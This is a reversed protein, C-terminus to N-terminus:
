RAFQQNMRDNASPDTLGILRNIPEVCVCVCVRARVSVSVCTCVVVACVCMVEGVSFLM